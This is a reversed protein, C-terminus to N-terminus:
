DAIVAPPVTTVNLNFPAYDEALRTWIERIAAVETASFSTKNGDTDYPPTVVSTHSGWQREVNGDFDLYLTAPAAPRSSLPPVALPSMSAAMLHRSELQEVRLPRQTSRRKASARGRAFWSWLM